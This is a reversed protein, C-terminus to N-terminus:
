LLEQDNLKLIRILEVLKVFVIKFSLSISNLFKQFGSSVTLSDINGAIIASIESNVLSLSFFSYPMYALFVHVGDQMCKNYIKFIWM